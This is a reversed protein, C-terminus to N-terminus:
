KIIEHQKTLSVGLESSDTTRVILQYHRDASLLSYAQPRLNWVREIKRM